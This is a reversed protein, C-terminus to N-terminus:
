ERPGWGGAWRRTRAGRRRRGGGSGGLDAGPAPGPNQDPDRGGEQSGGRGGGGQGGGGRSRCAGRSGSGHARPAEQPGQAEVGDPGELSRHAGGAASRAAVRAGRRRGGGGRGDPPRGEAVARADRRVAVARPYHSEDVGRSGAPLRRVRRLHLARGKPSPTRTQAPCANLTRLAPRPPAPRPAHSLPCLCAAGPTGRAGRQTQGRQQGWFPGRGGMKDTNKKAGKILDYYDEGGRGARM